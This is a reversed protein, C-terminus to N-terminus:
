GDGNWCGFVSVARVAMGRVREDPYTQTVSLFQQYNEDLKVADCVSLPRHHLAFVPGGLRSGRTPAPVCLSLWREIRLILMAREVSLNSKVNAMKAIEANSPCVGLSGSRRLVMWVIKETPDLISDCLVREPFQPFRQDTILIPKSSSVGHGLKLAEHVRQKVM